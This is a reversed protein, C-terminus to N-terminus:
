AAVGAEIKRATIRRALRDAKAEVRDSQMRTSWTRQPHTRLHEVESRLSAERIVLALISKRSRKAIARDLARQDAEPIPLGVAWRRRNIERRACDQGPRTPRYLSRRQGRGTQHNVRVTIPGEVALRMLQAVYGRLVQDFDDQTQSDM